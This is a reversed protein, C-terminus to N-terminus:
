ATRRAPAPSTSSIGCMGNTISSFADPPTLVKISGRYREESLQLIHLAVAGSARPDNNEALVLYAPAQRNDQLFQPTGVLASGIGFSSAPVVDGVGSNNTSVLDDKYFPITVLGPRSNTSVVGLGFDDGTTFETSAAVQLKEIASNWEESADKPLGKLAEVDEETLFNPELVYSQVPQQTLKPDGSELGNLRGRFVLQGFLSDYYFRQGLSASLDKYYWRSGSVLVKDPNAPQLDGPIAERSISAAYRDLPRTVRASSNTFPTFGLFNVDIAFHRSETNRNTPSIYANQEGAPSWDSGNTSAFVQWKSPDRWSADSGTTFTYSDFSVPIGFDLIVHSNMNRDLWVTTPNGDVLVTPGQNPPSNGGPNTARIFNTLRVGNQYFAIEGLQVFPVLTASGYQDGNSQVQSFVFQFWRAGATSFIPVRTLSMSPTESDFVVEASAMNLVAPLGPSAPHDAKYEGGAYTLTEGKKLVPYNDGWYTDYSSAVALNSSNLFAGTDGQSVGDPVWAVPTGTPPPTNGLWFGARLPYWYRQFFRGDGAVAWRNGTRDQWLARTNGLNGGITNTLVANGIALNLPYPPIVPNGAIANYHFDYRPNAPQ